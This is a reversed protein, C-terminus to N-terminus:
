WGGRRSASATLTSQPRPPGLLMYSPPNGITAGRGPCPDNTAHLTLVFGLRKWQYTGPTFGCAPDDALVIRNSATSFWTGGTFFSGFFAAAWTGDSYFDIEFGTQSQYNFGQGWAGPLSVSAPPGALASAPLALSIVVAIVLLTKKM